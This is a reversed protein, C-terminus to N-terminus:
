PRRGELLATAVAETAEFYRLQEGDVLEFGHEKMKIREAYFAITAPDELSHLGVRGGLGRAASRRMAHVVMVAGCGRIERREPRNWPAIALKDIYVLAKSRDLRSREGFRLSMIAEVRGGATIAYTEWDAAPLEVKEFDVLWDWDADLAKMKALEPRWVDRHEVLHAATAAVVRVQVVSRDARFLDEEHEEHARSEAM